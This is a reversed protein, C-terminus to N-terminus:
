LSGLPVLCAYNPATHFRYSRVEKRRPFWRLDPFRRLRRPDIDESSSRLCHALHKLGTWSLFARTASPCSSQSAPVDDSVRVLASVTKSNSSDSCASDLFRGRLCPLYCVKGEAILAQKEEESEYYDAGMLLADKINTNMGIQVVPLM